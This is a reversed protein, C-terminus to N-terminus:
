IHFLMFPNDIWMLNLILVHTLNTINQYIYSTM